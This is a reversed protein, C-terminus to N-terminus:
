VIKGKCVEITRIYDNGDIKPYKDGTKKVNDNLCIGYLCDYKKMSDQAHANGSLLSFIAAFFIM